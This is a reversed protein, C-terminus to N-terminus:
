RASEVRPRGAIKGTFASHHSYRPTRLFDSPPGPTSASHRFRLRSLAAADATFERSRRGPSPSAVEAQGPSILYLCSRIASKLLPKRNIETIFGENFTPEKGTKKSKRVCSITWLYYNRSIFSSIRLFFYFITYFVTRKCM